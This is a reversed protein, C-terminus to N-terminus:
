PGIVSIDIPTPLAEIKKAFMEGLNIKRRNAYAIISFLCDYVEEAENHKRDPDNPKTSVRRRSRALEGVEEVIREFIQDDPWYGGLSDVM